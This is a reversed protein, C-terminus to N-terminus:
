AEVHYIDRVDGTALARGFYLAIHSTWVGLVSIDEPGTLTFYVNQAEDVDVDRWVESNPVPQDPVSFTGTSRIQYSKGEYDFFVPRSGSKGEQVRAEFNKLVGGSEADGTLQEFEPSGQYILASTGYLMPTGQSISLLQGGELFVWKWHAVRGPVSEQCEVIREVTSERGDWLALIDGSGLNEVNQDPGLEPGPRAAKALTKRSRVVLFVVVGGAFLGILLAALVISFM